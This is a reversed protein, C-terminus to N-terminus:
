KKKSEDNKEGDERDMKQLEKVYLLWLEKVWTPDKQCISIVKFSCKGDMPYTHSAYFVDRISVENKESKTIFPVIYDFFDAFLGTFNTVTDEVEKKDTGDPFVLSFDTESFDTQTLGLRTVFNMSESWLENREEVTEVHVAHLVANANVTNPKAKNNEDLEPNTEQPLRVIGKLSSTAQSESGASLLLNQLAVQFANETAFTGHPEIKVYDTDFKVRM